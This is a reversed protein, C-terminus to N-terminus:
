KNGGLQRMTFYYDFCDYCVACKRLALAGPIIVVSNLGKLNGCEVCLYDPKDCSGCDCSILKYDKAEQATQTENHIRKEIAQRMEHRRVSLLDPKPDHYETLHQLGLNGWPQHPISLSLPAQAKAAQAGQDQSGEVRRQQVSPSRHARDTQKGGM